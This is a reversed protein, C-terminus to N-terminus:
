NESEFWSSSLDEDGFLNEYTTIQEEDMQEIIEAIVDSKKKWFTHEADAHCLLFVCHETEMMVDVLSVEGGAKERILYVGDTELHAYKHM